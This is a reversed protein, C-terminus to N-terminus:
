EPTLLISGSSTPGLFVGAGTNLKQQLVGSFKTTKGGVPHTFSGGLGGSPTAIKVFLDDETSDVVTVVNKASISLTHPPISQDGGALSFTAAGSANNTFRLAQQDKRSEYIAAKCGINADFGGPVMWRLTGASDSDNRARNFAMTGVVVGPAAGKKYLPTYFNWTGDVHVQALVSYKSGDGLQGTIKIAGTKKVSMMGYGIGAPLAPNTGDAQLLATYNGAFIPLKARRVAIIEFVLATDTITATFVKHADDAKLTVALTVNDTTVSGTFAANEDLVVKFSHNVGAAVVKISCVGAKSVSITAVGTDRGGVKAVGDYVAAIPLSLVKEPTLLFSHVDAPDNLHGTCLIQGANNIGIANTLNIKEGGVMLGLSDLSLLGTALSYYVAHPERNADAGRGVVHGFDNIASFSGYLSSQGGLNGLKTAKGTGYDYILGWAGNISAAYDSVSLLISGANNIARPTFGDCVTPLPKGNLVARRNIGTTQGLIDGFNNIAFAFLNASKKVIGTGVQYIFSETDGTSNDFIAGVLFGSDNLSYATGDKTAEASGVINLPAMPGKPASCVFGDMQLANGVFGQGVALGVNNLGWGFSSSEGTGSTNVTGLDQWGGDTYLAAHGDANLDSGLVEGRDNLVRCQFGYTSYKSGLDTAVYGDATLSRGSVLIMVAIAAFAYSGRFRM